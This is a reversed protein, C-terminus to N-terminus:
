EGRLFLLFLLLCRRVSCICCMYVDVYFSERSLRPFQIGRSSGRGEGAHLAQTSCLLVSCIARDVVRFLTSVLLSFRRQVSKSFVGTSLFSSSRSSDRWYFPWIYECPGPETSCVARGRKEWEGLQLQSKLERSSGNEMETDTHRDTHGSVFFPSFFGGHGRSKTFFRAEGVLGWFIGWIADYRRTQCFFRFKRYSM